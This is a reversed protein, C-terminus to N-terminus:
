KTLYEVKDITSKPNRRLPQAVALLLVVASLVVAVFVVVGALIFEPAESSVPIRRLVLVFAESSVFAGTLSIAGVM